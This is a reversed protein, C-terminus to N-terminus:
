WSTAIWAAAACLAVILVSVIQIRLLMSSIWADAPQEDLEVRGVLRNGLGFALYCAIIIVVFTITLKWILVPGMVEFFRERLADKVSTLAFAGTMIIVGLIAISFPDYIKMVAAASALRRRRDSQARARPVFYIALAATALAYLGLSVLHIWVTASV